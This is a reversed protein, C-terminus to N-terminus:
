DAWHVGRLTGSTRDSLIVPFDMGLASTLRLSASSSRFRGIGKPSVSSVVREGPGDVVDHLADGRCPQDRTPQLSRLTANPTTRRTAGLNIATTTNGTGGKHNIVALKKM